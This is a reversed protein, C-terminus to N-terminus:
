SEWRILEGEEGRSPLIMRYRLAGPYLKNAAYLVADDYYSVQNDSGLNDNFGGLLRPDSTKTNGDSKINCQYAICRSVLVLAVPLWLCLTM